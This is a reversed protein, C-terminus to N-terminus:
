TGTILLTRRRFTLDAWLWEVLVTARNRGGAPFTIHVAGWLWWAAAGRVRIVGFDAM